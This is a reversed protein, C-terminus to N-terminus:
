NSVSRNSVGNVIVRPRLYALGGTSSEEDPIVLVSEIGEPHQRPRSKPSSAMLPELLHNSTVSVSSLKRRPPSLLPVM